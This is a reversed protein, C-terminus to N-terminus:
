QQTFNGSMNTPCSVIQGPIAAATNFVVNAGLSRGSRTFNGGTVTCTSNAGPMPMTPTPMTPYTGPFMGPQTPVMGPYTGMSGMSNIMLTGGTITLSSGDIVRGQLTGRSGWNISVIDASSQNIALTIQSSPMSLGPLSINEAGVYTGTYNAGCGTGLFAGALIALVFKKNKKM